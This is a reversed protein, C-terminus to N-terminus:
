GSKKQGGCRWSWDDYTSPAWSWATGSAGSWSSAWSYSSASSESDAYSSNADTDQRNGNQNVEAAQDRNTDLDERKDQPTWEEIPDEDDSYWVSTAPHTASEIVSYNAESERVTPPIELTELGPRSSSSAEETALPGLGRSVRNKAIQRVYSKRVSIGPNKEFLKALGPHKGRFKEVANKAAGHM